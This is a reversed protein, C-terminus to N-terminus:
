ADVKEERRAQRALARDRSEEFRVAQAELDVLFRDLQERLDEGRAGFDTREFIRWKRLVPQVVDDLHQRLDYIGGKAILV